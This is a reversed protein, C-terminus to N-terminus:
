RGEKDDRAERKWTGDAQWVYGEAQVFTRLEWLMTVTHAMSAACQHPETALLGYGGRKTLTEAMLAVHRSCPDTNVMFRRAKNMGRIAKKANARDDPEGM